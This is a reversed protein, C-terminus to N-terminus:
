GSLMVIPFMVWLDTMYGLSLAMLVQAVGKYHPSKELDAKKMIEYMDKMPGAYMGWKWMNDVDGQSVNYRDYALPQNAGGSLQQMWMMANYRLDGGTCYGLGAEVTPLILNLSVDTPRGPDKNIEPDIWKDCSSIFLILVTLGLITKFKNKMDKLNLLKYIIQLM